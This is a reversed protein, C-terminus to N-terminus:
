PGPDIGGCSAGTIFRCINLLEEIPGAYAIAPAALAALLLAVGILLKDKKV